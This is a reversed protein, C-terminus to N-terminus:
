IYVAIRGLVDGKNLSSSKLLYEAECLLKLLKLLEELRVGRLLHIYRELVDKPFKAGRGLKLSILKRLQTQFTSVIQLPDLTSLLEEVSRLFDRRKGELLLDVAGFASPSLLSFVLEEVARGDVVDPYSLLKDTEVKLEQLGGPVLSLLLSVVERGSVKGSLKREVLRVKEFDKMPESLLVVDMGKMLEPFIGKSLSSRDMDGAVLVVRECGGIFSLFRERERKSRLVGNLKEARRIVPFGSQFLSPSSSRYVEEPFSEDDAYFTRVNFKRRLLEVLQDSFYTEEGYVFARGIELKGEKIERLAQRTKLRKL